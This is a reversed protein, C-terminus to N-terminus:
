EHNAKVLSEYLKNYNESSQKEKLTIHKLIKMKNEQALQIHNENTLTVRAQVNKLVPLSHLSFRSRSFANSYLEIITFVSKEWKNFLVNRKLM